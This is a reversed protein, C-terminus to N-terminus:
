SRFVEFLRLALTLFSGLAVGGIGIAVYAARMTTKMSTQDTGLKDIVSDHAKVEEKMDELKGPIDLATLAAVANNTDHVTKRLTRMEEANNNQISRILKFEGELWIKLENITDIKAEESMSRKSRGEDRSIDAVAVAEVKLAAVAM